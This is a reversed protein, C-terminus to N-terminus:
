CDDMWGHIELFLGSHFLLFKFHKSPTDARIITLSHKARRSLKITINDREKNQIMKYHLVKM